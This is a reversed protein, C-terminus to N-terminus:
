NTVSVSVTKSGCGSNFTVDFTGRIQNISSITFSASGSNTITHIPSAILLNTASTTATVVTLGTAATLSITVTGSGTGKRISLPSPSTTAAMTCAVPQTGGDPTPSQSPTPVPTPSQTPTPQPTPTPSNHPNGHPNPTPTPTPSPVPTPTPTPIPTPGPPPPPPADPAIDDIPDTHNLAVEPIASDYYIQSGITVDGSGTVDVQIPEVTFPSHNQISYAVEESILRGRWDFTVTTITNGFSLGEDLVVRQTSLTGTGAFDMTVDYTRSDIMTVKSENGTAAHRRVSDMRAKELHSALLQAAAQSRIRARSSGIAAVALSTIIGVIMLVVLMQLLTFGRESRSTYRNGRCQSSLRSM